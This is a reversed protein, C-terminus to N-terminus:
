NRKKNASTHDNNMESLKNIQERQKLVKQKWDDSVPIPYEPMQFDNIYLEEHCNPCIGSRFKTGCDECSKM